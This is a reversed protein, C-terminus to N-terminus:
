NHSHHNHHDHHSYEVLNNMLENFYKAIDHENHHNYFTDHVHMALIDEKTFEDIHSYNHRFNDRHISSIVGVFQDNIIYHNQCKPNPIKNLISEYPFYKQLLDCVRVIRNM